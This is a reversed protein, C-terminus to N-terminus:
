GRMVYPVVGAVNDRHVHIDTKMTVTRLPGPRTDPDQTTSRDESVLLNRTTWRFVSGTKEDNRNAAVVIAHVYHWKTMLVIMVPHILTVIVYQQEDSTPTAM